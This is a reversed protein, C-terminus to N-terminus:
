NSCGTWFRRDRWPGVTYRIGQRTEHFGHDLQLDDWGYAHAVAHDIRRHIERLEVIDADMCRPSHILNYTKTLGAPRALMLDRRCTDLQDGLDHM